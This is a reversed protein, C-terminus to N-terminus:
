KRKARAKIERDLKKLSGKLDGQSEMTQYGRKQLSKLASLTSKPDRLADTIVDGYLLQKSAM